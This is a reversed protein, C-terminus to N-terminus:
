ENITPLSSLNNNENQDPLSRLYEEGKKSVGVAVGNIGGAKALTVGDEKSLRTGDQLAYGTVEGSHKILATINQADSNPNPVEKNITIPMRGIMGDSENNSKILNDSNINVPQSSYTVDSNDSNVRTDPVGSMTSSINVTNNIDSM